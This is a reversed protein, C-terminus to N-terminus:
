LTFINITIFNRSPNKLQNRTKRSNPDLSKKAKACSTLDDYSFFLSLARNQDFFRSFFNQPGSFFFNKKEIKKEWNTFFLLFFKKKVKERNFTVGAPHYFKQAFFFFNENKENKMRIGFISFFIKKENKGM